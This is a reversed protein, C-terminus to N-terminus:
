VFELALLVRECAKSYLFHLEPNLYGCYLCSDAYGLYDYENGQSDMVIVNSYPKGSPIEHDRYKWVSSIGAFWNSGWYAYEKPTFLPFRPPSYSKSNPKYYPNLICGKRAFAERNKRYDEIAGKKTGGGMTWDFSSLDDASCDLSWKDGHRSYTVWEEGCEESVSTKGILGEEDGFPVALLIEQGQHPRYLALPLMMSKDLDTLFVEDPDPFATFQENNEYIPEM